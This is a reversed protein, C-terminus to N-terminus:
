RPEKTMLGAKLADDLPRPNFFVIETATQKWPPTKAYRWHVLSRWLARHPHRWLWRRSTQAATPERVESLLGEVRDLTERAFALAESQQNLVLMVILEALADRLQKNEREMAASSTDTM